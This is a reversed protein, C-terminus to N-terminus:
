GLGAVCVLALLGHAAVAAVFPIWSRTRNTRRVIMVGAVVAAVVLLLVGAGFVFGYLSPHGVLQAISTVGFHREVATLTQTDIATMAVSQATLLVIGVVIWEITRWGSVLAM